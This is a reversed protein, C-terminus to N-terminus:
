IRPCHCHPRCSGGKERWWAKNYIIVNIVYEGHPFIINQARKQLSELAKSQAVTLRSHWVSCINELDPGPHIVICFPRLICWFICKLVIVHMLVYSKIHNLLVNNNKHWIKVSSMLKFVTFITSAMASKSASSLFLYQDYNIIIIIIIKNTYRWYTSFSKLTNSFLYYYQFNSLSIVAKSSANM